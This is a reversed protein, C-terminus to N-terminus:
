RKLYQVRANLDDPASAFGLWRAVSGVCECEQPSPNLNAAATTLAIEYLAKRAEASSTQPLEAELIEPLDEADILMAVRGRQEESLPLRKACQSYLTLVGDTLSDAATGVHFIIPLVWVLADASTVAIQEIQRFSSSRIKARVKAWRGVSKTIANNFWYGIAANVVPILRMVYKEGLYVGVRRGAVKIVAEQVARRVGSRLLNRLQKRATETFIFRAYSGVRETGTLGLAAKFVVYVDEEDDPDFPCDYLTAIALLLQMQMRTAFAVDGLLLTLAGAGAALKHSPEPVPAAVLAECGTVALGNTAGEWKTKRAARKILLQALEDTPLGPYKDRVRRVDEAASSTNMSASVARAFVEAIRGPIQKKNQTDPPKQETM